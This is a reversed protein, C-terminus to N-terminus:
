RIDDNPALASRLEIRAPPHLVDAMEHVAVRLRWPMRRDTTISLKLKNEYVETLKNEVMRQMTSLTRQRMASTIKQPQAIIAKGVSAASKGLSKTMDQVAKPAVAGVKEALKRRTSKGRFSAQLKTAAADQAAPNKALLPNTLGSSWSRSRQVRRM